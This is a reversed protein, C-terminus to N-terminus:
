ELQFAVKLEWLKLMWSISCVCLVVFSIKKFIARDPVSPHAQGEVILCSFEHLCMHQAQMFVFFLFVFVFSALM